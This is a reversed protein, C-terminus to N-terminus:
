KQPTAGFSRLGKFALNTIPHGKTGFNAELGLSVAGRATDLIREHMFRGVFDTGHHPVQSIGILIPEFEIKKTLTQNMGKMRNISVVDGINIGQTVADGPDTVRGKDTMPKLATEFIRRKINIGSDKFNDDLENIMLDRTKDIDGTYRLFEQPKVDGRETLKDGPKVAQGVKVGLGMEEPVYYEQANVFVEWGGIDSKDIKTVVGYSEALVAKGKVNDPLRFMQRIRPFGKDSGGGLAGGTHFQRLATQTSPEGITQAALIGVHFGVPYLTGNENSGMCRQCIGDKSECKLPSRVMIRQHAGGKKLKRLGDEDLLQNRMAGRSVVRGVVDADDATMWLGETTRCDMEAIRVRINANVLLKTLYGTDATSLGKAIMGKRAGPLTSWYSGLDHGEAYSKPIFVPIIKSEHDTVAVPTALMRNVSSVKGAMAGSGTTIDVLRNEKDEHVFDSIEKVAKVSADEFGDSKESKEAKSIIADRKKEDIVLDKLSVSFGVETVYHWGLDKLKNTLDVALERDTKAIDTLISVTMKKTMPKSIHHKKPLISNILAMGPTIVKSGVKFATNIPTKLKGDKYAQLAEAASEAPRPKGVAKTMLYLGHYGEMSPLHMLSNDKTSFLNKSPLMKDMLEMRAGESVPVHVGMTDGDFDANMGGVILPSIRIAKGKVITPMFALMNFKHLSPARNLVIPRTKAEVQLAKVALPDGKEAMERAELPEYGLGVLRKVIFPKYISLGMKEPIGVQDMDLKPDPIITSRASLDQTRSMVKSQFYGTKNSNGKLQKLLGKFHDERTIPNGVGVLGRFANSMDARIGVLNDADVGMRKLDKLTKSMLIVERYAHVPDSVNLSGDPLPYVSRFKPPIIPVYENLYAEDAKLGTKALAQLFRRKKNFKDRKAVSKTLKIDARTSSLAADIDINSLLKKFGAGGTLLEDGEVHKVIDGDKTVGLMGVALGAFEKTSMDLVSTVAKEMLPHVIPEPLKHHAWKTGGIGGTVTPDFLGGKEPKLSDATIVTANRIEGNSLALIDKDTLPMAKLTDGRRKLNIGAGVMYTNFKEAVFPEKLPPLPLGLQLARWYEDNKQGRVTFSEEVFKEAGGALAAYLELGGIRQASEGKSKAPQEEITYAGGASRASFKKSVTHRLKLFHVRGSMVNKYAIGTTPDTLTDEGNEDLGHSKLEKRVRTLVSGAEPDFNKVLYTKGTKEAINGAASELLQGPNVRGVLGTPNFLVDITAGKSNTYMEGDPVIHTVIGKGGARNSLKDGVVLAEKTELVVRVARPGKVVDVVRAKYDYDWYISKDAWRKSLARHLKSYDYDEHLHQEQVAPIIMAGHGVEAGVKIIGDSDYDGRSVLTTAQDPYHALLDRMGIKLNREKELKLDYKHWSTLKKSASESIVIGDEFNLGKYPMYAVNLDKGLAFGGDKSFNSEALLQGKTVKDGKKVKVTDHLFGHSNLPYRDYLHVEVSKRQGPVRLKIMDKSVSTVTGSAPAYKNIKKGMVDDFGQGNDAVAQVAPRDPDVLNVSQEIHRDAMGLRNGDNNNLFPVVNSSIGFFAQPNSFIYEVQAAPYTGLQAQKRGKVMPHLAKPPTAKMNYQDPFAIIKTDLEKVDKESKKGTKADVVTIHISNGKKRAGLALHNTIGIKMGEPTAVGDIAGAHSPHVNRVENTIAHTSGIGGEGMTTTLANTSAIELPNSQDTYRSFESTAFFMKVPNSFIEPNIAGKVRPDRDVRGAINWKISQIAKALREPVFDEVSHLSKFALSETDDSKAEGRSLELVKKASDMLAAGTVSAHPSKITIKNVEPDLPKSDMFADILSEAEETSAPLPAHPRLKKFLKFVIKDHDADFSKQFLDAGWAAKTDAFSVGLAKLVNALPYHSSAGVRFQLRGKERDLIVRYTGAASTNVFTEVNNTSTMRTYLGPRLRLQNIVQMEKGDVIFSSNQTAHPLQFVVTGPKADLTKGLKDKITIDAVLNAYLSRDGLKLKKHLSSNDFYASGLRDWRWNAAHVEHRRGEVPFADKVIQETRTVMASFQEKPNLM